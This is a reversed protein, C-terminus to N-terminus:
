NAAGVTSSASSPSLQFVVEKLGIGLVYNLTMVALVKETGGGLKIELLYDNQSRKLM